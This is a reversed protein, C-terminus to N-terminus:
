DEEDADESSPSERVDEPASPKGEGKPKTKTRTKGAGEILDVIVETGDPLANPEDFIIVGNKVIGRYTKM